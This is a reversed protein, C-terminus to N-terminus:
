SRQRCAPDGSSVSRAPKRQRRRADAPAPRGARLQEPVAVLDPPPRRSIVVFAPLAGARWRRPSPQGRGRHPSPDGAGHRPARGGRAQAGRRRCARQPRARRARCAARCRRHRPAPRRGRAGQRRVARPDARRAGRRYPHPAGRRPAPDTPSGARCAGTRCTPADTGARDHAPRDLRPDTRRSRHGSHAGSAVIRARTARRASGVRGSAPGCSTREATGPVRGGSATRSGAHSHGRADACPSAAALGRRDRRPTGGSRRAALPAVTPTPAVAPRPAAAPAPKSLIPRTKVKEVLVTKTRGHSFSQRVVGAEVPRKLSLTKSPAKTETM